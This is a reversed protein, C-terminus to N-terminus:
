SLEKFSKFIFIGKFHYFRNLNSLLLNFGMLSFSESIIRKKKWDWQHLESESIDAKM